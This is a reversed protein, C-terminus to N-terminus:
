WSSLYVPKTIKAARFDGKVVYSVNVCKKLRPIPGRPFPVELLHPTNWPELELQGKSSTIAPLDEGRERVEAAEM